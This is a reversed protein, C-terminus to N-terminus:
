SQPEGRPQSKAPPPQPIVRIQGGNPVDRIQNGFSAGAGRNDSSPINQVSAGAGGQSTAAPPYEDRDTGPQTPYGATAAARNNAAGTRDVDLVAPQGAAQADAVHGAAAPYKNPDIYVDKPQAGAETGSAPAPATNSSDSSHFANLIAKGGYYGIAGGIAAGALAGVV